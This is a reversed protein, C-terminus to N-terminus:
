SNNMLQKTDNVSETNIRFFKLLNIVIDIKTTIHGKVELM